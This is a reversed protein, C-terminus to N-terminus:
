SSRRVAPISCWKSSPGSRRAARAGSWCPMPEPGSRSRRLWGVTSQDLGCTARDQERGSCRGDDQAASLWSVMGDPNIGQPPAWEAQRARILAVCGDLDLDGSLDGERRAHVDPQDEDASEPSAEALRLRSLGAASPIGTGRLLWPGTEETGM